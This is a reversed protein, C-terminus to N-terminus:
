QNGGRRCRSLAKDVVKRDQLFKEQIGFTMCEIEKRELGQGLVLQPGQVFQNRM